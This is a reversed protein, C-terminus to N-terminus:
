WWITTHSFQRYETLWIKIFRQNALCVSYAPFGSLFYLHHLSFLLIRPLLSTGGVSRRLGGFLCCTVQGASFPVSGHALMSLSLPTVYPILALLYGSSLALWNIVKHLGTHSKEKPNALQPTGPPVSVGVLQGEWINWIHMRWIKWLSCFM